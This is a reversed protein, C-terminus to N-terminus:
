EFVRLAVGESGAGVRTPPPAMWYRQPGARPKLRGSCGGVTTPAASTGARSERTMAVRRAGNDKHARKRKDNGSWEKRDNRALRIGLAAIGAFEIFGAFEVFGILEVLEVL